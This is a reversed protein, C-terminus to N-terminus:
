LGLARLADEEIDSTAGDGDGDGDGDGNNGDAASASPEVAGWGAWPDTAAAATTATKAAAAAAATAATTAASASAAATAARKAPGDGFESAAGAGASAAAPDTRHLAQAAEPILKLLGSASSFRLLEPLMRSFSALLQREAVSGPLSRLPPALDYTCHRRTLEFQQQRTSPVVQRTFRQSCPIPPSFLISSSLLLHSQDRTQTFLKRVM